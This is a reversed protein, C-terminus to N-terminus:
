LRNLEVTWGLGEAVGRLADANAACNSVPAGPAYQKRITDPSVFRGGMGDRNAERDAWWRGLAQEIAQEATTEVDYIVLRRYQHQDLQSLLETTHDTSSLTGHIIINEGNALCRERMTSAITTSEAHVFGALERLSVPRGDALTYKLLEALVDQEGMLLPDKFADADIHRYTALAPDASLATSKGAGPPGATVVIGLSNQQSVAPQKALEDAILELHLELRDADYLEGDDSYLWRTSADPEDSWPDDLGNRSLFAALDEAVRDRASTM